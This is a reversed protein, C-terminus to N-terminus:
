VQSLRNHHMLHKSKLAPAQIYTNGLVSKREATVLRWQSDSCDPKGVPLYKGRTRAVAYHLPVTCRGAWRYSAECRHVVLRHLIIIVNLLSM